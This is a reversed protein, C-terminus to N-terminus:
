KNDNKKPKEVQIVLGRVHIGYVQVSVRDGQALLLPTAHGRFHQWLFCGLLQPAMQFPEQLFANLLLFHCVFQLSVM